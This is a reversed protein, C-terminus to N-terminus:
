RPRENIAYACFESFQCNERDPNAPRCVERGIEWLTFDFIGPYEPSLERARYTIYDPEADNPVFGMRSFVRKIQVDVSIDISYRDSVPVHFDRVLINAAMTAIKPGVGDFELFRRVLAASPMRGEWIGSANGGYNEELRQIALFLYRPMRETYRHLPRPLLMAESLAEASLNALSEFDFFGLRQSLEYPILWAREAAIQRDMICAIVFAHPHRVLDNLLVDAERNGTFSIFAKPQSLRVEGAEVLKDRLRYLDPTMM